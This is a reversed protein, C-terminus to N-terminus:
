AWNPNNSINFIKKNGWNKFEYFLEYTDAELVFEKIAKILSNNGSDVSTAGNLAIDIDNRLSILKPEVLDTYIYNIDKDINIQKHTYKKLDESTLIDVGNYKTNEIIEM